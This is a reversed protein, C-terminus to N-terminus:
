GQCKSYKPPSRSHLSLKSHSLHAIAVMLISRNSKATSTPQSLENILDSAPANLFLIQCNNESPTYIDSESFSRYIFRMNAMTLFSSHKGLALNLTDFWSPFASCSRLFRLPERSRMCNTNLKTM